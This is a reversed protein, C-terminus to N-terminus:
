LTVTSQDGLFLKHGKPLNLDSSLITARRGILSDVIRKGCDILCGEMISNEIETNRIVIHDGTSTYPGIYTDPGVECHDGIIAPDRRGSIAKEPLLITVTTL